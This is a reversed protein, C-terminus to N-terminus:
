LTAALSQFYILKSVQGLITAQLPVMWVCLVRSNSLSGDGDIIMIQLDCDETDQIYSIHRVSQGPADSLLVLNASKGESLSAVCLAFM